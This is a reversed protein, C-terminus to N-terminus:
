DEGRALEIRRLEQWAPSRHSAAISGLSALLVVGAVVSFLRSRRWPRNERYFLVGLPVGAFFGGAHAANNVPLAFAFIAAYIVVRTLFQKWAPDKAAYLYGVLCGILGFLGASAGATFAPQGRFAYWLDSAVFGAISTGIFILAFRGSGLRAETVRGLDWLAMMNFGVHLMGFHVFTASLYRWPEERGLPTFLAGWKLAESPRAGGLIELKGSAIAMIVFIIVCVGVYLKTLPAEGGLASLWADQVASAVAGPLPERCRACQKEDASNLAGCHPCVRSAM